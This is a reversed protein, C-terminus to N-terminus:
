NIAQLKSQLEQLSISETPEIVRSFAGHSTFVETRQSDTYNVARLQSSWVDISFTVELLPSEPYNTPDVEALEDTGIMRSFTKLMNVYARPKLGVTYTYVPRGDIIEREVNNYDVNYVSEQTVQNLLEAKHDPSLRALPVVGLVTQDFLQAGGTLTNAETSAGWVGLIESFDYSGGATSQQTTQIDTYRIYERDPFAISETVVRSDPQELISQSHVSPNPNVTLQTTQTLNQDGQESTLKTVSPTSLSSSLMREFVRKPNSYVYHWWSWVSFLMVLCAFLTIVAAMQHRNIFSRIMAGESKIIHHHLM